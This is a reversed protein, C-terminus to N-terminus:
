DRIPYAAAGPPRIQPCALLLLPWLSDLLVAAGVYIFTLALYMPNRSIRYPGREVLRTATRHPLITTRARLFLAACSLLLAAGAALVATGVMVAVGPDPGASLPLAFQGHLLLGAVFAAAYLLPPPIRMWPSLSTLSDM